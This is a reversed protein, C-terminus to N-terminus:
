PLGKTEKAKKAFTWKVEGSETVELTGKFHKMEWPMSLSSCGGDGSFEIEPINTKKDLPEEGEGTEDEAAETGSDEETKETKEEPIAFKFDFRHFSRTVTSEGIKYDYGDKSFHLTLIERGALAEGQVLEVDATILRGIFLAETKEENLEFRPYVIMMVLGLLTIVGLMEILTFGGSRKGTELIPM